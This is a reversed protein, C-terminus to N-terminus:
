ARKTCRLYDEFDMTLMATLKLNEANKLQKGFIESVIYKFGPCEEQESYLFQYVQALSPTIHAGKSQRLLDEDRQIKLFHTYACLEQRTSGFVHMNKERLNQLIEMNLSLKNCVTLTGNMLFRLQDDYQFPTLFHALDTVQHIYPRMAGEVRRGHKDQGAIVKDGEIIVLRLQTKSMLLSQKLSNLFFKLNPDLNQTIQILFLVKRREPMELNSPADPGMGCGPAQDHPEKQVRLMAQQQNLSKILFSIILFSFSLLKFLQEDKTKPMEDDISIFHVMLDDEKSLPMGTQSSELYKSFFSDVDDITIRKRTIQYNQEDINGSQFDPNPAQVYETRKVSEVIQEIFTIKNETKVRQFRSIFNEDSKWPKIQKLSEFNLLWEDDDGLIDSILNALVTNTCQIWQRPNIGQPVYQLKQPLLDDLERYIISKASDFQQMSLNFVSKCTIFCLHSLRIVAQGNEDVTLIQLRQQKALDDRIKEHQRIKEIFFYDIMQLLEMHRPLIKGFLGANWKM